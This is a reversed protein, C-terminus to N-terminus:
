SLLERYISALRAAAIDITLNAHAFDAANAAMTRRRAGDLTLALLAETLGSLSGPEFLLGRVGHEILEPTGGVASGVPCCGCAMAELLANSFSESRSPLVFVDIARMWGAPRDTAPEFLVGGSLGHEAARRRLSEEEPGSGVILLVARPDARRVSAFADILMSLNKEPRLVAVTGIVVSAQALAEPRARGEPHFEAREFGNECVFVRNRPIAYDAVLHREVAHCNVFLGSSLRDIWPELPRLEPPNLERFCLQGTLTVCGALRAVPVGFVATAPEFAHVIRIGHTKIYRYLKWASSIAGWSKFSELPFRQLPIGAAEIERWRMGGPRFCGVHPQIGHTGLHRAYKSVDREIGGLNLERVLLLVPIPTPNV